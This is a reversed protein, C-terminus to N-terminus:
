IFTLVDDVPDGDGTEIYTYSGVIKDRKDLLEIKTQILCYNEQDASHLINVSEEKIRLSGIPVEIEDEFFSNEENSICEYFARKAKAYSLHLEDKTLLKM